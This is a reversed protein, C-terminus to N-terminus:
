KDRGGRMFPLVLEPFLSGNDLAEEPSSTEGWQQVPVYAMALPANEPLPAMNGSSNNMQAAPFNERERLILGDMDDFLDLNM